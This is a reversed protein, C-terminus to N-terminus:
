LALMLNEANQKLEPTATSDNAIETCLTKVAETDTSLLAIKYKVDNRRFASKKAALSKKYLAVAAKVDGNTEVAVGKGEYIGSLIIASAPKKSLANDFWEIALEMDGKVMADSAIQYAAYAALESESNTEYIENLAEIDISGAKDQDIFTTGYAAKAENAKQEKVYAMSSIGAYAIAVVAVVAIVINKNANIWHLINEATKEAHNFDTEEHIKQNQAM